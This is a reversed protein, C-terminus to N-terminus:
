HEDSALLAVASASMGEQRGLAGMHEATTAKVSIQHLECGCDEAMNARMEDIYNRLRPKQAVITADINGVCYGAEKIKLCTKRLLVRSDANKYAPDTDPFHSGIDGLALAGLLADIIAHTLVDADSHGDLGKEHPVEVGGLILRRGERLRHSDYGYGIRPIRSGQHYSMFRKLDQKYTIKINESSGEVGYVNYGAHEALSADDTGFFQNKIARAYMDRMIEARFVQPTLIQWIRSRDLTGLIKGDDSSDVQKLTNSSPTMLVAAGKTHAKDCVNRVDSAEILPRVADHVAILDDDGLQRLANNISYLRERGGQVLSLVIGHPNKVTDAQYAACIAEARPLMDPSVAIVIRNIYALSLFRELTHALIPKGAVELFAKPTSSGLRTGRGAAPLILNVSYSTLSM